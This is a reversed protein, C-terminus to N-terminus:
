ALTELIPELHALYLVEKGRPGRQKGLAATIKPSQYFLREYREGSTVFRHGNRNWVLPRLLGNKRGFVSDQGFRKSLYQMVGQGIWRACGQDELWDALINTGDDLYTGPPLIAVIRRRSVEVWVKKRREAPDLMWIRLGESNANDWDLRVNGFSNNLPNGDLHIVPTTGTYGMVLGRVPVTPSPPYTFLVTDGKKAGRGADNITTM